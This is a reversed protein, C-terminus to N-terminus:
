AMGEQSSRHSAWDFALVPGCESFRDMARQGIFEELQKANLNSILITPKLERYRSDIVEFLLQMEHSSGSQAGVEDIILLDPRVLDAMAESESKESRAGYTARIGRSLSSVTGYKVTSMHNAMVAHAIACALHTKGTGPQGTMLLGGGKQLQEPWTKAYACCVGHVLRQGANTANFNELSDDRFRAPIEAAAVIERMRRSRMQQEAHQRRAERRRTEDDHYREDCCRPCAQAIPMGAGATRGYAEFVGHRPCELHLVQIDPEGQPPNSSTDGSSPPSTKSQPESM